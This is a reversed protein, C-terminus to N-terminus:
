KQLKKTLVQLNKSEKLKFHTLMKITVKFM